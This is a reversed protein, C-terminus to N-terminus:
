GVGLADLMQAAHTMTSWDSQSGMVIGVLPKPSEPADPPSPM